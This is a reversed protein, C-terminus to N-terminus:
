GKKPTAREFTPSSSPGAAASLGGDGDSDTESDAGGFNGRGGVARPVYGTRALTPAGTLKSSVQSNMQKDTALLRGYKQKQDHKEKKLEIIKNHLKAIKADRKQVANKLQEISANEPVQSLQTTAQSASDWDSASSPSYNSRPLSSPFSHSLPTSPASSQIKGHHLKGLAWAVSSAIIRAHEDSVSSLELEVPHAGRHDIKLFIKEKNPTKGVEMRGEAWAEAIRTAFAHWSRDRKALQHLSDGSWKGMWWIGREHDGAFVTWCYGAQDEIEEAKRKGASTRSSFPDAPVLSLSSSSSSSTTRSASPPTYNSAVVYSAETPSGGNITGILNSLRFSTSRLSHTFREPNSM